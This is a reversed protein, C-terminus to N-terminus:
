VRFLSLFAPKFTFNSPILSLLAHFTFQSFSLPGTPLPPPPLRPPLLRPLLRRLLLTRLQLPRKQPPSLNGLAQLNRGHVRRAVQRRPSPPPQPRAAHPAHPLIPPSLPPAPPLLPLHRQQQVGAGAGAGGHGQEGGRLVRGGHKRQVFSVGGNLISGFFFIFFFISYHIPKSPHFPNCPQTPPLSPHKRCLPFSSQYHAMKM